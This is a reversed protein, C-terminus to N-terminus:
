IDDSQVCSRDQRDEKSFSHFRIIQNEKGTEWAEQTMRKAKAKRAQAIATPNIKKLNAVILDYQSDETDVYSCYTNKSAHIQAM